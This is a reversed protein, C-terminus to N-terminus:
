KGKVDKAELFPDNDIVDRVEESTTVERTEMVHHEARMETPRGDNIRYIKNAEAMLKVLKLGEDLTPPTKRYGNVLDVLIEFGQHIIENTQRARVVQADAETAIKLATREAKWDERRIWAYITNASVGTEKEIETAAVGDMFRGKVAKKITESIPALNGGKREALFGGRAKLYTRYYLSHRRQKLARLTMGSKRSM